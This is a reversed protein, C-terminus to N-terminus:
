FLSKGAVIFIRIQPQSVNARMVVVKIGGGHCRGVAIFRSGPFLAM